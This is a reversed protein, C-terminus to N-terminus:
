GVVVRNKGNQKAQYMLEDVRKLISEITDNENIVTAGVSITVNLNQNKCNIQTSEFTKRLREASAVIAKEDIDDVIILFEEGGWRGFVDNTRFVRKLIKGASILVTDGCDHGYVDNIKKFNDIDFFIIGFKRNSNRFDKFFSKLKLELYRRNPIKTLQDFMAMKLLEQDVDIKRTGRNKNEKMDLIHEIKEDILQVIDNLFNKIEENLKREDEFVVVVAGIPKDELFIPTISIINNEYIGLMKSLETYNKLQKLEFYKTTNDIDLESLNLPLKSVGSSSNKKIDFSGLIEIDTNNSLGIFTIKSDLYITLNKCFNNWNSERSAINKILNSLTNLKLYMSRYNEEDIKKAFALHKRMTAYMILESSLITFLLFFVLVTFYRSFGELLFDDKLDIKMYKSVSSLYHVYSYKSPRPKSTYFNFDSYYYLNKMTNTILNSIDLLSVIVVQNKGAKKKTSYILLTINNDKFVDPKEPFNEKTEVFRRKLFFTEGIEFAVKDHYIFIMGVLNNFILSNESIKLVFNKKFGESSLNGNLYDEIYKDVSSLTNEFSTSVQNLVKDISESITKLEREIVSFKQNMYMYKSVYWFIITAIVFLLLSYIALRYKM